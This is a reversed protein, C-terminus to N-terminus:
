CWIWSCRHYGYKVHLEECGEQGEKKSDHGDQGTVLILLEINNANWRIFSSLVQYFLVTVV